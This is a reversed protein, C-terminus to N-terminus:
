DFKDGEEEAQKRFHRLMEGLKPKRKLIRIELIKRMVCNKLIQRRSKVANRKLSISEITEPKHNARKKSFFLNLKEVEEGSVKIPVEIYDLPHKNPSRLLINEAM